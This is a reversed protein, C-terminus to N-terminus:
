KQEEQIKGASGLSVYARKYRGNAPQVKVGKVPHLRRLVESLEQDETYSVKIKISM